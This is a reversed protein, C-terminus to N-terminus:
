LHRKENPIKATNLTCAVFHQPFVEYWDLDPHGDTKFSYNTNVPKFSNKLINKKGLTPMAQILKQTYPHLPNKFISNAPAIEVLRGLHMVGIRDCIYNAVGLDHTIFLFTLGYKKKLTKLLDLIQIQLTVDLSAVAEDCILLKPNLILSRAINIRQRQGGSLEHVYRHYFDLELGCKAMIDIVTSRYLPDKVNRCIGHILLGEGIIEGITLYPSLSSFSDQFIIQLDKRLFRKEASTLLTLDLGEDYFNEYLSFLPHNKLRAKKQALLSTIKKLETKIQNKITNNYSNKLFWFNHMKFIQQQKKIKLLYLNKISKVDPDLVLSGLLKLLHNKSQDSKLKLPNLIQQKLFNSVLFDLRYVIKRLYSPLFDNINLGYYFLNGQSASTLQMIVKGLTTKGSGSEGVIGLSEGQFIVLNIKNNVTLYKKQFIGTSKVLYNKSLNNTKLLIM